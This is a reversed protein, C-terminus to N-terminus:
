VETITYSLKMTLDSTKTVLTSLNNVTSVFVAPTDIFSGNPSFRLQSGYRNNNSPGYDNYSHPAPLISYFTDNHYWEWTRYAGSTSNTVFFDNNPLVLKITKNYGVLDAESSGVPKPFSFNYTTVDSDNSMSLKVHKAEDNVLAATWYYGQHILITDKIAADQYKTAVFTVTPYSHTHLTYSWDSLSIEYDLLNEATGAGATQIWHLANATYSFSGWSISFNPIPQNLTVTHTAVKQADVLNNQLRLYKTNLAYEDIVIAPTTSNYSFKYGREREWDIIPLNYVTEYGSYTWSIDALKESFYGEEAAPVLENARYDMGGLAGRTLCVSKIPGNGQSTSWDWVFKYGLTVPGSENSNYSGRRPNTGTYADTSGSATVESTHAIMSISADNDKDTLLCGSFFQRIPVIKETSILSNWNGKSLLDTVYSTITNHEEIRKVIKGDRLLDLRTNGKM